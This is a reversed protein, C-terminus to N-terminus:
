WKTRFFYYTDYLLDGKRLSRLFRRFIYSPSLYFERFARKYYATITPWSLNQHEFLPEKTQHCNYLSWNETRIRGLAKLEQYYPTGPYPICIDFKATDLPLKKAFEITKNMSSETEGSLGLIFFGFTDLGAQKALRIAKETQDLSIRKNIKELVTEDGTEIGFAVQWLGAKKAIKLFELDVTDVRIGNFLSWPFKLGQRLIEACIEKARAIDQTFSDDIIHIERYGCGLLYRMEEVVRGPLKARFASGFVKKNCYNCQFACGRSTELLGAPNKRSSLRSNKYRDLQFLDWAPFPLGNIDKLRERAPTRKLEGGAGDRYIIGNVAAPGSNLLETIVADGEGIAVVDFCKDAAAEEPMTTAHVGGLITMVGPYKKKAESMLDRTAYYNPTNASSGLLDPKFDGIERLLTGAPDQYFDLDLVKVSHEKVLNGALTALGLSPYSPTGVRVNTTRYINDRSQLSFLLVKAM